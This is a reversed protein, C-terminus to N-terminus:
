QLHNRLHPATSYNFHVYVDSEFKFFPTFLPSIMSFGYVCCHCWLTFLSSWNLDQLLAVVLTFRYSSLFKNFVTLSFLNINLGSLFSIFNTFIIFFM